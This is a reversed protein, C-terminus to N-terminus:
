ALAASLGDVDFAQLVVLDIGLEATVAAAHALGADQLAAIDTLVDSDGDRMELRAGIAGPEDRFCVVKDIGLSRFVATPVVEIAGATNQLAFHGDLVIRRPRDQMLRSVARGLLGQNAEVDAVAKANSQAAVGRETRILDGASYHELGSRSAATECATTKGVGHVGGVFVIGM